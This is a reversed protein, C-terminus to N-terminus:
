GPAGKGDRKLITEAKRADVSPHLARDIADVAEAAEGRLSQVALRSEVILAASGSVLSTFGVIGSAVAFAILADFVLSAVYRDAVAGAISVLTAMAFMGTALYFRSMARGILQVRRQSAVLENAAGAKTRYGSPGELYTVLWRSRDIARGFRNSTSLLLLSTANTLLAPGSVYSLVTFPNTADAM